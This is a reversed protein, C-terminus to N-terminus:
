QVRWLMDTVPNMFPTIAQLLALTQNRPDKASCMFEVMCAHHNQADPQMLFVGQKLLPKIEPVLLYRVLTYLSRSESISVVINEESDPDKRYIYARWHLPSNHEIKIAHIM